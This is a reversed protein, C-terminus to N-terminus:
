LKFVANKYCFPTNAKAGASTLPPEFLCKNCLMSTHHLLFDDVHSRLNGPLNQTERVALIITIRHHDTIHHHHERSVCAILMIIVILYTAAKPDDLLKCILHVFFLSPFIIASSQAILNKVRRMGSPVKEGSMGSLEPLCRHTHTQTTLRESSPKVAERQAILPHTNIHTNSM